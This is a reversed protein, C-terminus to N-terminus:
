FRGSLLDIGYSQGQDPALEPLDMPRPVPTGTQWSGSESRRLLAASVPPPEVPEGLAEEDEDTLYYALLAGGFIGITSLYGAVQTDNNTTEDAMVPYILVWPALFGAAAGLDIQLSRYRSMKLDDQFYLGATIGLLNGLLMNIRYAEGEPADIGVGLMLGATAGYLGLSNTVAVQGASPDYNQGYWYGLGTGVLGGVAM